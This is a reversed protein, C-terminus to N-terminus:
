RTDERELKRDIRELVNLLWSTCLYIAVYLMAAEPTFTPKLGSRELLVGGACIALWAIALALTTLSPKM